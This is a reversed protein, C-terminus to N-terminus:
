REKKVIIMSFYNLDEKKADRINKFIKEDEMGARSIYIASDMLNMEALTQMIQEFVKNVKMLVVTDFRKIADELEGMYNAPLIAISEDALGLSIKAKAASANISSVGPIIEIELEPNSELLRDYLYFFTSYIAPDGLTIFAADLGEHLRSLITEATEAWKNDLESDKSRQVSKTKRMPFHAEIIEKGELSLAKQVISLALSNGEERGKPVCICPVERLIREAKLTLLEPDGPGVGIVYLKGSM